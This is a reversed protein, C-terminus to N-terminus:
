LFSVRSWLETLSVLFIQSFRLSTAQLQEFDIRSGFSKVTKHVPQILEEFLDSLIGVPWSWWFQHHHGIMTVWDLTPVIHIQDRTIDPHRVFCVHACKLDQREVIEQIQIRLSPLLPPFLRHVCDTRCSCRSKKAWLTVSCSSMVKTDFSTDFSPFWFGMSYWIVEVM